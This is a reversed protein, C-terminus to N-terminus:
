RKLRNEIQTLWRDFHPCQSRIQHIGIQSIIIGSHFTKTFESYLAKLRKAPPDDLNIREPNNQYRNKLADLESQKDTDPFATAIDTTSVFLLAELEHISLYPLFRRSNIDDAIAQELFEVKRYVDGSPQQDFKPFDTPLGYYDIMTTIIQANRDHLLKNLDLKFQDYSTIGGKFDTGSKVRKTTLLKATPHIQKQQLYPALVDRVFIEETQGEVLIHIFKM